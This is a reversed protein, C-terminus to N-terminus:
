VELEAQRWRDANRQRQSRRGCLLPVVMTAILIALLVVRLPHKWRVANTM